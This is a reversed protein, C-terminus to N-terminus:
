NKTKILALFDTFYRYINKNKTKSNDLNWKGILILFDIIKFDPNNYIRLGFIAECVSLEISFDLNCIMWDKPQNWLKTSTKCYFLHHEISDVEWCEDFGNNPKIEWKYNDNCNLIGM